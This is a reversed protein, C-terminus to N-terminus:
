PQGGELAPLCGADIWTDPLADLSLAEWVFFTRRCIACRVVFPLGADAIELGHAPPLADTNLAVGARSLLTYGSTTHPM